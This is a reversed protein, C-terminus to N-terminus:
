TSELRCSLSAFLVHNGFHDALAEAQDADHASISATYDSGDEDVAIEALGSYASAASELGARQYLSKHFRIVEPVPAELM